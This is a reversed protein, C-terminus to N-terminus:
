IEKQYFYRSIQSIYNGFECRQCWNVGSILIGYGVAKEADEGACSIYIEFKVHGLQIRSEM